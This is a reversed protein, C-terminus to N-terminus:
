ARSRLEGENVSDRLSTVIVEVADRLHAPSLHAYRLTMRLDGHGLLEQITRLPKGAIALWSAFTHRLSHPTLEPRIGSIKKAVEFARQVDYRRIAEGCSRRFIPGSGGNEPLASLVEDLASSIPISKTKSTKQQHITIVGRKRDVDEWRLSLVEGLRSGTFLLAKLVPVCEQLRTRYVATAASEPRRGGGFRRAASGNGPHKVPGLTRTRSVYERWRDENEFATIFRNWEASEFFLLKANDVRLMSVAGRRIPNRDLLGWAEGKNLVAKMINWERNITAPKAGEALREQRYRDVDIPKLSEAFKNGFRPNLHIRLVEMARTRGSRSMRPGHTKLYEDALESFRIRRASMRGAAAAAIREKHIRVAEAYPIKGLTEQRKPGNRGNLYFRIKFVGEKTRWIAM